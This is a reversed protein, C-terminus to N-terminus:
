RSAELARRYHAAADVNAYADRAYGAALRAYHWAREYDHGEFFHFSLNEAEWEADSGALREIAEGARLHLERRRRYSLSEYAADRLVAHRFRAADDGEFTLFGDLQGYALDGPEFGDDVLIEQLVSPRFRLGLVAANRLLTRPLPPLSDIETVIVADLSDPVDDVNGRERA